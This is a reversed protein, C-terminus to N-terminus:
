LCEQRPHRIGAADLTYPVDCDPLPATSQARGRDVVRPATPLRAPRMMPARKIEPEPPSSPPPEVIEPDPVPAELSHVLVSPLAESAPRALPEQRRHAWGISLGAVLALGLMGGVLMPRPWRARAPTDVAIEPEALTSPKGDVSPAPSAGSDSPLEWRPLPREMSLCTSSISDIEVNEIEAVRRLREDLGQKALSEV